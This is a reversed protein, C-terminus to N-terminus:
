AGPGEPGRDIYNMQSGSSMCTIRNRMKKGDVEVDERMYKCDAGVNVEAVVSGRVTRVFLLM